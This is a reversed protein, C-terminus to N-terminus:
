SPNTVGPMPRAMRQAALWSNVWSTLMTQLSDDIPVMAVDPLVRSDAWMAQEHVLVLAKCNSQKWFSAERALLRQGLENTRCDADDVAPLTM